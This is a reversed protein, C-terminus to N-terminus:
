PDLLLEIEAVPRFGLRELVPRSRAGAHTSLAPIGAEAADDWRARVLVRYAGRGRLRPSVGGGIMLVAPCDDAVLARGVGAPEGDVRALYVRPASGDREARWREEAVAEWEAAEEPPTSFAEQGIRTALAFEEFSAVRRAEVGAPPAPPEEVLLLATAHREGGPREDPVLGHAQLRDVLDPPTASSGIWWLAERHGQTAVLDRIEVLTEAVEDPALRLRSVSTFSPVPGLLLCYRDTLVRTLGSGDPIRGWAAPDEAFRRLELADPSSSTPL